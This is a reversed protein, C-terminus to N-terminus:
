FNDRQCRFQSAAAAAAAANSVFVYYERFNANRPFIILDIIIKGNQPRNIWKYNMLETPLMFESAATGARQESVCNLLSVHFVLVLSLNKM